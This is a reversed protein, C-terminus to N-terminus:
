RFGLMTAPLKQTEDVYSYIATRDGSMRRQEAVLLPIAGGRNIVRKAGRANSPAAATGYFNFMFGAYDHEEKAKVAMMASEYADLNQLILWDGPSRLEVHQLSVLATITTPRVSQGNNQNTGCCGGQVSRLQQITAQRYSPRTEGPQYDALARETLAVTDYAYALVRAATVDKQVAVPAGPGWVTVTDVFPMALTVREGDQMVGDIMTRVWIGNADRGQYILQKGVDLANTPYSRITQTVGRTTSFSAATGAKMQQQPWGQSCNGFQNRGTANVTNTFGVGQGGFGRSTSALIRTFNYWANNTDINNGCVQVQEVVAVERPYTLCCTDFLCFRAEQVSGWWRGQNLLLSEAQNLWQL